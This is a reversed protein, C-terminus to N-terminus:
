DSLAADQFARQTHALLPDMKEPIIVVEGAAATVKKEGIQIVAEGELVQV